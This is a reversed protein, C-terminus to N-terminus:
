RPHLHHHQCNQIIAMGLNLHAIVTFRAFFFEKVISSHTADIVSIIM